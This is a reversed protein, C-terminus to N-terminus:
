IWQRIKMSLRLRAQSTKLFGSIREIGTITIVDREYRSTDLDGCSDNLPECGSLASMLVCCCTAKPIANALM